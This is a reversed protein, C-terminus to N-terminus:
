NKVIHISQKDNVLVWILCYTSLIVVGEEPQEMQDFDLQLGLDFGMPLFGLDCCMPLLIVECCTYTSLRHLNDITKDVIHVSLAVPCWLTISYAKNTYSSVIGGKIQKRGVCIHPLTQKQVSVKYDQTNTHTHTHTHTHTDIQTDTPLIVQTCM